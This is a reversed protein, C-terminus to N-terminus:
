PIRFGGSSMEDMKDPPQGGGRLNSRSQIGKGCDVLSNGVRDILRLADGIANDLRRIELRRADSAELEQQPLSCATCHRDSGFSSQLRPKQDHSPGGNCYDITIEEGEIIPRIAHITEVEDDENWITNPMQLCSHSILWITPYVAGITSGPGCPLCNTM